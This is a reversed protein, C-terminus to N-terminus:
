PRAPAPTRTPMSRASTRPTAARCRGSTITPTAAASTNADYTKTNAAATVTLARQNIVGTTDNVFTYSYNNGSNGDSVTGSPTLTKGTGVNKHRVDRQLQRHREGAADRHHEPDRRRQTNADYTKTNTQATVTLARQNIVGNTSNVFTYSYNAGGNGDTVSGSPILTKGTGANTNAYVESFNASDSGQLTGSTITPTAAASTNADYTKTNAAATVTLARQNIVGTTDNVFTYPYNNGSNGDSVTGSPILTKGSGANANAYVESFNATDSGQLAGSTISPTAAASTTSDYTKTNTQATVTIARQNIVGTTDNVFTYSYNNGGNGDNVTGSPTLTKGTGANKTGYTEIFNATDSGQLAGSTIQPTAAASTTSDYTKTNTQATVTLARQNIVGTTDNVFTYSYNNGSNGDNVTGSPTLTKGTGVNKTGYTESFNATDSGQLTGSTIQPTAAASTNADYTKTNTQATVTLARQNIVGTTDNAFTYSYNNGSNGDTVTGSPILTKGSGANANAYVESFNASDSGQLTGSTITPTAAASTNADYTKTNTQATVTLARATITGNNQPVFTYTYNNGSNGDSVTGSPTLTKGTGVNKTDYTEIFNATDTGQLGSVNPATVASTNADYTKSNAAATVTIARANIVGTIDNVFTYSYNNGSNGDNVTGSPTLTKGTGVNKTGYTESFNATDSGQLTGTTISPTAAASTTADYTKTNTQATVTLARQNIVGTTDNVFTYSYNNGGNGDNVTGSPTLTKGTGANKTGYTEIFNATDSGQLTGGTITPTAAASTNADYTKTNTQATVTLARATITGNNQSM